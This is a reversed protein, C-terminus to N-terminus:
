APAPQPRHRRCDSEKWGKVADIVIGGEVALTGVLVLPNALGAAGGLLGTGVIYLGTKLLYSACKMNLRLDGGAQADTRLSGVQEALLRVEAGAEAIVFDAAAVM